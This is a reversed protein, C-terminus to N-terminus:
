DMQGFCDSFSPSGNDTKKSPVEENQSHKRKRNHEAGNCIKNVKELSLKRGLKERIEDCYPFQCSSKKCRRAHYSSVNMNRSCRECNRNPANRCEKVHIAYGKASRCGSVGCSDNNCALSHQITNALSMILDFSPPLTCIIRVDKDINVMPHALTRDIGKYDHGVVKFCQSCLDYNSGCRTCRLNARKKCKCCVHDFGVDDNNNDLEEAASSGSHRRKRDNGTAGYIRKAKEWTLKRGLKERIEDCYPFSCASVKNCHRAHHRSANMYKGCYDCDTSPVKDCEKVHEIYRKAKQCTPMKCQDEYCTLGHLLANCQSVTSEYSNTFTNIVEVDDETGAMPHLMVPNEDIHDRRYRHFCPVCLDFDGDCEICFLSARTTCRCCVYDFGLESKTEMEYDYNPRGSSFSDIYGKHHRLPRMAFKVEPLNQMRSIYASMRPYHMGPFQRFQSTSTLTLLELRELFPWLMYDTYGPNKGGYYNEKLLNEANRLAKHLNNDTYRQANPSSSKFFDFLANILPSLRELLIKQVAKEYSDKPLVASSPYLDDLYEVIVNSEWITRGNLELAPVRGLPSKTLYWNPSRDPNVNVIEVPVGKKALYIVVRQAYPCFRMSYLRLQNKGLAPERSGPHLIPSNLGKISSGPTTYTNFRGQQPPPTQSPSYSNFNNSGFPATTQHYFPVAPSFQIPQSNPSHHQVLPPQTFHQHSSAQSNYNKPISGSSAAPSQSPYQLPSHQNYQAPPPRPQPTNRFVFQPNAHFTPYSRFQYSTSSYVPLATTTILNPSDM